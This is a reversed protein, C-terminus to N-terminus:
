DRLHGPLDPLPVRAGRFRHTCDVMFEIMGATLIYHCRGGGFGNFRPNAQDGWKIDIDPHFTPAATNGNWSDVAVVHMIGCAPCYHGIGGAPRGYDNGVLRLKTGLQRPSSELAKTAPKM